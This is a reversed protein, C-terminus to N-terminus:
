GLVFSFYAHNSIGTQETVSQLPGGGEGQAMSPAKLGLTYQQLVRGM